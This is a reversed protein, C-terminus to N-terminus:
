YEITGIDPLNDRTKGNIDAVPSRGIEGLDKALNVYNSLLSGNDFDFYDPNMKADIVNRNHIVEGSVCEPLLPNTDCENAMSIDQSEGTDYYYILDVDRNAFKSNFLNTEIEKACNNAECLKKLAYVSNNIDAGYILFINGTTLLKNAAQDSYIGHLEGKNGTLLMTNYFISPNTTAAFKMLYIGTKAATDDIAAAQMLISNNVATFDIPRLLPTVDVGRIDVAAGSLPMFSLTNREIDFTALEQPCIIKIGTQKTAAEDLQIKNYEVDAQMSVNDCHLSIGTLNLAGHVYVSNEYFRVNPADGVVIGTFVVNNKLPNGDGEIQSRYVTVHDSGVANIAKIYRETGSSNIKFNNSLDTQTGLNITDSDSVSVGVYDECIGSNSFNNSHVVVHDSGEIIMDSCKAGAAGPTSFSNKAILVISSNEIVIGNSEVVTEAGVIKFGSLSATNVGEASVAQASNAPATIVTKDSGDADMNVTGDDDWSIVNGIVEVGSALKVEEEYAGQMVYVTGFGKDAAIEIGKNITAVPMWPSGDNPPNDSGLTKSVYVASANPPVVVIDVTAPVSSAGNSDTVILQFTLTAGIKPVIFSAEVQDTGTIDVQPGAIQSWQYSITDGDPDYSNSGNLYLPYGGVINVPHTEIVAVPPQNTNGPNTSPNTQGSEDGFKEQGGGCSVASLALFCFVVIFVLRMHGQLKAIM